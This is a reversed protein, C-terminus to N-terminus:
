FFFLFLYLILRSAKPLRRTERWGEHYCSISTETPPEKMWWRPENRCRFSRFGLSRAKACAEPATYIFAMSLTAGSEIGLDEFCDEAEVPVGGFRVDKVYPMESHVSEEILQWGLVTISVAENTNLILCKLDMPKMAERRAVERLAEESLVGSEEDVRVNVVKARARRKAEEAEREKRAEHIQLGEDLRLFLRVEPIGAHQPVVSALVADLAARREDIVAEELSRFFRKRPMVPLNVIDRKLRLEEILQVVFSYRTTTEWSNGDRDTTRITYETHGDAVTHSSSVVSRLAQQVSQVRILDEELAEAAADEKSNHQGMKVSTVTLRFEEALFRCHLYQYTVFALAPSFIPQWDLGAVFLLIM